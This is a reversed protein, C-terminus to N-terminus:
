EKKAWMLQLMVKGSDVPLSIDVWEKQSLRIGVSSHAGREYYQLLLGEKSVAQNEPVHCQEWEDKVVPFYQFPLQTAGKKGPVGQSLRFGYRPFGLEPNFSWRFHIGDLLEPHDVAGIGVM